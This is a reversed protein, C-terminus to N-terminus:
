KITLIGMLIKDLVSYRLESNSHDTSQIDKENYSYSIRLPQGTAERYINEAICAVVEGRFETHKNFALNPHFLKTVFSYPNMWGFIHGLEHTLGTEPTRTLTATGDPKIAKGGETSKPNYYISFFATGGQSDPKRGSRNEGNGIDTLRVEMEDEAIYSIMAELVPDDERIKDLDGAFSKNGTYLNGSFDYFGWRNDIKKYMYLRDDIEQTIEMGTPNTVNVPNNACFAYPSIHPYKGALTDPRDFRPIAAFYTRALYDYRAVGATLDLEKDGYKYPTLFAGSGSPHNAFLTHEM